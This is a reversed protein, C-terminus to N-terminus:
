KLPRGRKRAYERMAHKLTELSHGERRAIERLSAGAEFLDRVKAWPTQQPAFERRQDAIASADRRLDDATIGTPPRLVLNEELQAALSPDAFARLLVPTPAPSEWRLHFAPFYEAVSERLHRPDDAALAAFWFSLAPHGQRVDHPVQYDPFFSECAVTAQRVWVVAALWVRFFADESVKPSPDALPNDELGYFKLDQHLTVPWGDEVDRATRILYRPFRDNWGRRAQKVGALFEQDGLLTEARRIYQKRLAPLGEGFRREGTSSCM